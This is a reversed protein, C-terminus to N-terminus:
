QLNNVRTEGSAISSTAFEPASTSQIKAIELLTKLIDPKASIFLTQKGRYERIASILNCVDNDRLEDSIHSYDFIRM